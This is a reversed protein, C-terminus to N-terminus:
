GPRSIGPAGTSTPVGASGGRLTSRPSRIHNRPSSLVEPCPTAIRRPPHGVPRDPETRKTEQCLRFGLHVGKGPRSKRGAPKTVRERFTLSSTRSNRWNRRLPRRFERPPLSITRVKSLRFVRCFRRVPSPFRAPDGLMFGPLPTHHSSTPTALRTM